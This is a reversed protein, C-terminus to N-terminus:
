LKQIFYDYHNDIGVFNEGGRRVLLKLSKVTQILNSSGKVLIKM